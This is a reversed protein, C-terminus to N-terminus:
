FFRLPNVPRGNQEIQLHLHPGTVRGTNGSLAIQDKKKVVQGVHVLYESLHMYKSVIGHDHQIYIAKGGNTIEGVFIVKGDAIAYVSTGIAAAIDVGQHGTYVGTVPHVRMGFPSTIRTHDAPLPWAFILESFQFDGEVQVDIDDSDDMQSVNITFLTYDKVDQIQDSRIVGDSVLMQLVEDFTRPYYVTQYCKKNGTEENNDGSSKPCPVEEQEERVFYRKYGYARDFSSSSFDQNLVVADIAIIQQWNVAVSTEAQIQQAADIYFQYQEKSALPIHKYTVGPGAFLLSIFLIFGLPVFLIIKL